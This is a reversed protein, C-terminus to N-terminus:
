LIHDGFEGSNERIGEALMPCQYKREFQGCRTDSARNIYIM